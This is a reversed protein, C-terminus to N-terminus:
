GYGLKYLQYYRSDGLIRKEIKFKQDSVALNFDAILNATVWGPMAEEVVRNKPANLFLNRLNYYKVDSFGIEELSIVDEPTMEVLDAITWGGTIDIAVCARPAPIITVDDIKIREGPAILNMEKALKIAFKKVEANLEAMSQEWDM